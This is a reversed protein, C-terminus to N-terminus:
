TQAKMWVSPDPLELAGQATTITGPVTERYGAPQAALWKQYLEDIAAASPNLHTPPKRMARYLYTAFPVDDPTQPELTRPDIPRACPPQKSWKYGQYVGLMIGLYKIPSIGRPGWEGRARPTVGKPRGRRLGKPDNLLLLPANALMWLICAREPRDDAPARPRYQPPRQRDVIAYTWDIAHRGHVGFLKRMNTPVQVPEKEADLLYIWNMLRQPLNDTSGFFMAKTPEHRLVYLAYSAHLATVQRTLPTYKTTM